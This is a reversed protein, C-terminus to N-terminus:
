DQPPTLTVSPAVDVMPRVVLSQIVNSLGFTRVDRDPSVRVMETCQGANVGPPM